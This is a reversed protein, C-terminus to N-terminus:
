PKESPKQPNELLKRFFKRLAEQPSESPKWFAEQPNLSMEVGSKEVMFKGVRSKEVGSKPNFLENNFLELNFLGPNFHRPNFSPTLFDPTTIDKLRGSPKKLAESTKRLNEM